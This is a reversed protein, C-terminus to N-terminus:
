TPAIPLHTATSADASTSALQAPDFLGASCAASYARAIAPACPRATWVTVHEGWLPTVHVHLPRNREPRAKVQWTPGRPRLALPVHV